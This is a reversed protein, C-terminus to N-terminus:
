RSDVWKNKDDDGANKHLQMCFVVSNNYNQPVLILRSETLSVDCVHGSINHKM